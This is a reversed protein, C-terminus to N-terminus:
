YARRWCSDSSYSRFIWPKFPNGITMDEALPNGSSDYMLYNGNREITNANRRGNTFLVGCLTGDPVGTPLKAICDGSNTMTLFQGPAITATLASTTSETLAGSTANVRAIEQQVFANTSPDASADGSSGTVGIKNLQTHTVTVAGSINAFTTKIVHKVLKDHDNLESVPVDGGPNTPVLESPYSASEITM